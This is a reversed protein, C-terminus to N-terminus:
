GMREPRTVVLYGSERSGAAGIEAERMPLWVMMWEWESSKWGTHVTVTPRDQDTENHGIGTGDGSYPRV